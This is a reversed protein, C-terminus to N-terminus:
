LNLASFDGREYVRHVIAATPNPVLRKATADEAPEYRVELYDWGPKSAVTIGEGVSINTEDPSVAFQFTIEWRGNGRKSGTFDEFLVTGVAWGQFVANNTKGRLQALALQYAADVDQDAFSKTITFRLGGGGVIDIGEVSQGRVNIAGDYDPASAPTSSVTSLNQTIRQTEGGGSFTLVTEGTPIFENPDDRGYVATFSWAGGQERYSVLRGRLSQLPLGLKTAPVAAEVADVVAQEDTDGFAAFGVTVVSRDGTEIEVNLERQSVTVPM